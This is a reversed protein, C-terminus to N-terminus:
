VPVRELGDTTEYIHRRLMEMSNDIIRSVFTARRTERPVQAWVNNVYTSLDPRNTKNLGVLFLTQADEGTPEKYNVNQIEQNAKPTSWNYKGDLAGDIHKDFVGLRIMSRMLVGILKTDARAKQIAEKKVLVKVDLESKLLETPYGDKDMRFQMGASYPINSRWYCTSPAWPMLTKERDRWAVASVRVKHVNTKFHTTDSFVELGIMYSLRKMSTLCLTRDFLTTLVNDKTIHALPKREARKPIRKNTAPDINGWMNYAWYISFSEDENKVLDCDRFIRKNDSNKRKHKWANEYDQWNLGM